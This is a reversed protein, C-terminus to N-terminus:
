RKQVGLRDGDYLHAVTTGFGIICMKQVFDSLMVLVCSLNPQNLIVEIGM